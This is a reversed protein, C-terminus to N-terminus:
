VHARGIKDGIKREIFHSKDEVLKQYSKGDKNGIVIKLDVM